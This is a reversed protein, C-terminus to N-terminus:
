TLLYAAVQWSHYEVIHTIVRLNQTHTIKLSAFMPEPATLKSRVTPASLAAVLLKVASVYYQLTYQLLM